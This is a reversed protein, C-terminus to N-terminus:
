KSELAEAWELCFFPPKRLQERLEAIRAEIEKAEKKLVALFRGTAQRHDAIRRAESENDPNLKNLEVLKAEVLGIKKGHDIHVQGLLTINETINKRARDTMFRLYGKVIANAITEQEKPTGEAFSVRLVSTKELSEVRLNKELWTWASEQRKVVKLDAVSEEHLAANYIAYERFHAKWFVIHGERSGGKPVKGVYVLAYVSPVSQGMEAPPKSAVVTEATLLLLMSMM